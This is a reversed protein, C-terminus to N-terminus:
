LDKYKLKELTELSRHMKGNANQNKIAHDALAEFGECLAKNMKTNSKTERQVDVVVSGIDDIKKVKSFIKFLIGIITFIGILMGIYISVQEMSM